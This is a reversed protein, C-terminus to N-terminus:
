GDTRRDTQGDTRRDTQGDTRAILDLVMETCVPSAVFGFTIKFNGRSPLYFEM